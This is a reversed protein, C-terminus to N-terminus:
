ALPLSGRGQLQERSARQIGQGVRTGWGIWNIVGSKGCFSVLFFLILVDM